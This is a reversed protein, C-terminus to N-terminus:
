ISFMNHPGPATLPHLAQHHLPDAEEGAKGWVGPNLFRRWVESIFSLWLKINVQVSYMADELVMFTYNDPLHRLELKYQLPRQFETNYSISGRLVVKFITTMLCSEFWKDHQGGWPHLKLPLCLPGQVAARGHPLQHLVHLLHRFNDKMVKKLCIMIQGVTLRIHSDYHVSGNRFITVTGANKLTSIRELRIFLPFLFAGIQHNSHLCFRETTLFHLNPAWLHEILKENTQVFFKM